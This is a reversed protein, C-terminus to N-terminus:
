KTDRYKDIFKDADERTGASLLSELMYSLDHLSVFIKMFNTVILGNSERLAGTEKLFNIFIKGGISYNIMTGVEKGKEILAFSRSIYTVVMSELQKDNIRDKLLLSGAMRLGLVSAALEYIIQFYEKLNEEAHRYNLFSHALEHLAVFRLYGRRIDEDNFGEKFADPFIKTFSPMIQEKIRLDNPQNFLTICSGYKEIINVNAPLNMGVFKTRANLGSFIIVDLVKAKVKNNSEVRESPILAERRATLVISKYNNLRDTGEKDLVGVWAQYSAKGYFLKDDLHEVPGISIDLIYQDLELSAVLADEYLGDELAKAQLKLFNGFQTNETLNAAQNLKEIIPKLLQAYKVHFPTTVIKGDVKDVVMYQSFVDPNEKGASELEQDTLILQAHEEQLEYIPAILEAAQVLLDLVEKENSSLEPLKLDFKLIPKDM